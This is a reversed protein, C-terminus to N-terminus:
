ELAQFCMQPLAKANEFSFPTWPHATLLQQSGDPAQGLQPEPTHPCPSSEAKAKNSLSGLGSSYQSLNYFQKVTQSKM